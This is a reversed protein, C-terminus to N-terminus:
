RAAEMERWEEETLNRKYQQSGSLAIWDRFDPLQWTFHRTHEVPDDMLTLRVEANTTRMVVPNTALDGGLTARHRDGEVHVNTTEGYLDKYVVDGDLAMLDVLGRSGEPAQVIIRGDVNTITVPASIPADTRVVVAGGRNHIEMAGAPGVAEVSGGANVIRLGDLRPVRVILKVRHDDADERLSRTRVTFTRPGDGALDLQADLTVSEAARAKQEDDLWPPVLTIAEAEIVGRPADATVLVEGRVNEVDVALLGVTQPV